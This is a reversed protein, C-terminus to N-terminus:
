AGGPMLTQFAGSANETGHRVVRISAGMIAAAEKESLDLYHRLVVAERQHVPLSELVRVVPSSGWRAAPETEGNPSPAPQYQRHNRTARRSRILVQQRLYLVAREPFAPDVPCAFLALLSDQAIQEAFVADGTLLAALRVLSEYHQQYLSCLAQRAFADDDQDGRGKRARLRFRAHSRPGDPSDPEGRATGTDGM